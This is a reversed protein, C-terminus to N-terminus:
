SPKVRPDYSGQLIAWLASKYVQDGETNALAEIKAKLTSWKPDAALPSVTKDSECWTHQAVHYTRCKNTWGAPWALCVINHECVILEVTDLDIDTMISLLRMRV